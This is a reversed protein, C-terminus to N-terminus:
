HYQPRNKLVTWVMPLAGIALVIKGKARCDEAYELEETIEARLM